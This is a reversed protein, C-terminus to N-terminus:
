RSAEGKVRYYNDLFHQHKIKAEEVLHTSAPDATLTLLARERRLREAEWEGIFEPGTILHECTSCEPSADPDDGLSSNGFISSRNYPDINELPVPTEWLDLVRRGWVDLPRRVHAPHEFRDFQIYGATTNISKHGFQARVFWISYGRYLQQTAYTRRLITPTLPLLEDEDRTLDHRIAFNKLLETIRL